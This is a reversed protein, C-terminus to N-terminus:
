DSHKTGRCESRVESDKGVGARYAVRGVLQFTKKLQFRNAM